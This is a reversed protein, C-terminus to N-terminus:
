HPNLVHMHYLYSILPMSHLKSPGLDWNNQKWWTESYAQSPCFPGQPKISSSGSKLSSLCSLVSAAYARPGLNLDGAAMYFVLSPWVLRYGSGQPLSLVSVHSDHHSAPWWGPQLSLSIGQGLPSLCPTISCSRHSWMGVYMHMHLWGVYMHTYSSGGCIHAHTTLGVCVHAHTTVERMYMHMYSWVVHMNMYMYWGLM